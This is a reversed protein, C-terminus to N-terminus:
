LMVLFFLFLNLVNKENLFDIDEKTLYEIKHEFIEEFEPNITKDEISKTKYTLDDAFSVYEVHVGKCFFEPLDNAQKVYVGFYLSRGLLEIPDQPVEEYENNYEDHSIVDCFLTGVCSGNPSIISINVPNSM